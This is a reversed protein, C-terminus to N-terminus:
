ILPLSLSSFLFVFLPYISVVVAKPAELDKIKRHQLITVYRTQNCMDTYSLPIFFNFSIGIFSVQVVCRLYSNLLAYFKVEIFSFWSNFKSFSDQDKINMPHTIAFLVFINIPSSSLSKLLTIKALSFFKGWPRLRAGSSSCPWPLPFRPLSRWAPPWEEGGAKRTIRWRPGQCRRARPHSYSGPSQPCGPPPWEAIMFGDGM